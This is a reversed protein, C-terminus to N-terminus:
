KSQINPQPIVLQLFMFIAFYIALCLKEKILLGYFCNAFAVSLLALRM